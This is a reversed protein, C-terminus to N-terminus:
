KNINKKNLIKNGKVLPEEKRYKMYNKGASLATEKSLFSKNVYEKKKINYLKYKDNVKKILYPM